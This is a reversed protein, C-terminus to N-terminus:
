QLGSCICDSLDLKLPYGLNKLADFSSGGAANDIGRSVFRKLLLLGVVLALM